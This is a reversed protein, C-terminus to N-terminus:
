NSAMYARVKSCYRKSVSTHTKRGHGGQYRIVAGCASKGGLKWAGALYKMGWTLNAVPQYLQERTGTFGIMRATEYKLQMLGIEGVSGTARSNYSSEVHVVARAFEVPVGHERAFLDVLAVVEHKPMKPPAPIVPEPAEIQPTVEVSAQRMHEPAASHAEADVLSSLVEPPEVKALSVCFATILAAPLLAAYSLQM